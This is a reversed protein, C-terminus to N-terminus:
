HSLVWKGNPTDGAASRSLLQLVVDGCSENWQLTQQLFRLRQQYPEHVVALKWVDILCLSEGSSPDDEERMAVDGGSPPLDEQQQNPEAMATDDAEPSAAAAPAAEAHSPHAPPDPQAPQAPQAAPAAPQAQGPPAWSSAGPNFSFSPANVNLNTKPLVIKESTDEDEWSDAMIQDATQTVENTNASSKCVTCQRKPWYEASTCGVLFFGQLM